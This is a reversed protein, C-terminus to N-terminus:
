QEAPWRKERRRGTDVLFMQGTGMDVPVYQSRRTQDPRSQDCGDGPSLSNRLNGVLHLLLLSMSVQKAEHTKM